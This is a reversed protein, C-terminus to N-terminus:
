RPPPSGWKWSRLGDLYAGIVQKGTTIPGDLNGLISVTSVGSHTGGVGATKGYALASGLNVHLACPRESGRGEVLDINTFTLYATAEQESVTGM